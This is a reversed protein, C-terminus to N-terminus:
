RCVIAVAGFRNLSKQRRVVPGDRQESHGLHAIKCLSSPDM